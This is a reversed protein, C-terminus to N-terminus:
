EEEEHNKHCECLADCRVGSICGLCPIEQCVECCECDEGIEDKAFDTERIKRLYKGIKSAVDYSKMGTGDHIPTNPIDNLAYLALDLLEIGESDM